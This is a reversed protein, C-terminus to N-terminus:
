AAAEARQRPKRATQLSDLSSAAVPEQFMQAAYAIPDHQGPVYTETAPAANKLAMLETHMRDMMPRLESMQKAMAAERAEAAEARALAASTISIQAAEDLYANANERISRGGMGINQVALDSLGACQEVTHIGIAKLELVHNRKLFPWQELPTGDATVEEGARFRKYHEPWRNRHEDTVRFVPSNPNGPQIIQVREQQAFIPRGASASAVPDEVPEMHFRPITSDRAQPVGETRTYSGSM